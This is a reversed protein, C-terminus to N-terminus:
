NERHQTVSHNCVTPRHAVLDPCLCACILVTYLMLTGSRDKRGREGWDYGKKGENREEREREKTERRRKKRGKVGEGKMGEEGKEEVKM